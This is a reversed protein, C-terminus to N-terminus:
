KGISFDKIKEKIKDKRAHTYKETTLISSHGLQNKLEIINLIENELITSAYNHRLAHPNVKCKPTGYFDYIGNISEKQLKNGRESLFLYESNVNKHNERDILYNAVVQIGVKTLLIIREKNGKGIVKMEKDELNLYNLKLDCCEERRIGTNAMLYIIAINRSRYDCEKTKVRELFKLITKESITTPNGTNQIRIYDSKIIIISSIQKIHLLFENYQKLSSLKRNITTSNLSLNFISLKFQLIDERTFAPSQAFYQEVDSLYSSITNKSKGLDTLYQTFGTTNTM